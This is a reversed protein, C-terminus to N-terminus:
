SEDTKASHTRPHKNISLSLQDALDPNDEGRRGRRGGGIVKFCRTIRLEAVEGAQYLWAFTRHCPIHHSRRSLAIIQM